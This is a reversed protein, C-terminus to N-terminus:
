GWLIDSCDTVCLGHIRLLGKLLIVVISSILDSDRDLDFSM